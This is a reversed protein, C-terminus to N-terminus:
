SSVEPTTPEPCLPVSPAAKSGLVLTRSKEITDLEGASVPGTPRQYAPKGRKSGPRETDRVSSGNLRAQNVLGPPPAHKQSRRIDERLWNRWCAHFDVYPRPYQHDLWTARSLEVDVGSARAETEVKQDAENPVFDKPPTRSGLSRREGKGAKKDAKSLQKPPRETRPAGPLADPTNPSETRPSAVDPPVSRGPHFALRYRSRKGDRRECLMFGKAECSRLMRRISREETGLMSALRGTSPEINPAFEVLALMLARETISAGTEVMTVIRDGERVVGFIWDRAARFDYAV